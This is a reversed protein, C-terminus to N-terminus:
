GYLHKSDIYGDVLDDYTIIDIAVYDEEDRVSILRNDDIRVADWKFADGDGSIFERDKHFQFFKEYNVEMYSEEWGDGDYHKDNKFDLNQQAIINYEMDYPFNSEFIVIDDYTNFITEILEALPKNHKVMDTIEEYTFQSYEGTQKKIIQKM